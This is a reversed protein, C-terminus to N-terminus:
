VNIPFILNLYIQFLYYVSVFIIFHLLSIFTLSIECEIMRDNCKINRLFNMGSESHENM